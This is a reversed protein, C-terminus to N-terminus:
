RPARPQWDPGYVILECCDPNSSVRKAVTKLRTGNRRMTVIHITSSGIFWRRWLTM